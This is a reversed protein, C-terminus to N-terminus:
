VTSPKATRALCWIEITEVGQALLLRALTEVTARTTVVDDILAIHRYTRQGVVTFAGRLNKLRDEKNLAAQHETNRIKYLWDQDMPIKLKRALGQALLAAQNFGREKVKDKHMPVPVLVQPLTRTTDAYHFQVFAEMLTVFSRQWYRKGQYKFRHLARDIPFEYRLPCLIRAFPAPTQLCEGCLLELESQHPLPLACCKCRHSNWPLDAICDPCLMAPDSTTAECFLCPRTRLEQHILTQLQNARKHLYSKSASWFPALTIM